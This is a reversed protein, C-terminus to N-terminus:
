TRATSPWCTSARTWGRERSRSPRAGSRPGPRPPISTRSGGPAPRPTSSSSRAWCAWPLRRRAPSTAAGVYSHGSGLEGALEGTLYTLDTRHSVYPVLAEYRRRMAPWDIQGMDPLYFFDREIRWTDNFIQAWEARPDLQMRLGSLDLTKERPAGEKPEVIVYDKADRVLLRSQDPSLDYGQVEAM